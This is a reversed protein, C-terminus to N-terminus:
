TLLQLWLIYGCVSVAVLGLWLRRLFVVFAGTVFGLGACLLHLGFLWWKIGQDISTHNITFYIGLTLASLILSATLITKM